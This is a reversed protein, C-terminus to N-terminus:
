KALVQMIQHYLYALVALGLASLAIKGLTSATHAVKGLGNLDTTHRDVADKLGPLACETRTTRETLQLMREDHTKRANELVQVANSIAGLSERIDALLYAIQLNVESDSLAERRRPQDGLPNGLADMIIVKGV